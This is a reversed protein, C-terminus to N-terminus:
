HDQREIQFLFFSYFLLFARERERERERGTSFRFKAGLRLGRWTRMYLVRVETCFYTPVVPGTNRKKRKEVCKEKGECILRQLVRLYVFWGILFRKAHLYRAESSPRCRCLCCAFHPYKTTKKRRKKNKNKANYAIIFLTATCKYSGRLYMSDTVFM